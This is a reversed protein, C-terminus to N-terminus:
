VRECGRMLCSVYRNSDILVATPEIGDPCNQSIPCRPRFACASKEEELSPVRGEIAKISEGKQSFEPLSCLLEKTYPHCPKSLVELSSGYEVLHGVYMVGVKDTINKVLGINHSIFIMALNYKKILKKLLEVIQFQVTADLATTCEDAILLKPRNAIAMAIVVRQKQGGSMEHPFKKMSLSPHPIRVEELLSIVRDRMEKKTVTPNHVKIVEAIQKEITMLPDLAGMPNQFVMCLDKGLLSRREAQSRKLLDKGDFIVEGSDVVAQKPLLDMLALATMSKGSGSEGVLGLAEGNKLEFSVNRLVTYSTNNKKINVTLNNVTLM